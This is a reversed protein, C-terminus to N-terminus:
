SRVTIAYSKSSKATTSEGRTQAYVVNAHGAKLAKFVIVVSNDVDAESVERVVTTNTNKALRWSLGAKKPLAISVLEGRTTTISSRAGAPLHKVPPATAGAAAAITLAAVIVALVRM